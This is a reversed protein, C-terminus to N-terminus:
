CKNSSSPQLLSFFTPKVSFVAIRCLPPPPLSLFTFPLSRLRLAVCMIINKKVRNKKAKFLQLFFPPFCQQNRLYSLHRLYDGRQRLDPSGAQSNLCAGLRSLIESREQEAVGIFAGVPLRTLSLCDLKRPNKHQLRRRLFVKHQLRPRFRRLPGTM